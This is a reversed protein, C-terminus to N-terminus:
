ERQGWQLTERLGVNEGGGDEWLSQSGQGSSAGRQSGLLGWLSQVVQPTGGSNGEGTVGWFVSPLLPVTSGWEVTGLIEWGCAVGVGLM